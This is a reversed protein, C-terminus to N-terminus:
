YILNPILVINIVTFYLMARGFMAFNLSLVNLVVGVSLIKFYLDFNETRINAQSKYVISGTSILLLLILMGMGSGDGLRGLLDEYGFRMLTLQTIIDAFTYSFLLGIFISLYYFKNLNVKSLPYVLLTVLASTHITSAFLVLLFFYGTKRQSILKIAFLIIAVAIFQRLVNMSSGWYGM